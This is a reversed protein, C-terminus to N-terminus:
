IGLHSNQPHLYVPKCPEWWGQFTWIVKYSFPAHWCPSPFVLSTRVLALFLFVDASALDVGDIVM